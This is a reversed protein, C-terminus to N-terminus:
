DIRTGTEDYVIQFSFSGRDFSEYLRKIGNADFVFRSNLQDGKFGEILRETGNADYFSLFAKWGNRYFSANLRETGNADFVEVFDLVGNNYWYAHVSRTGDAYVFRQHAVVGNNYESSWEVQVSANLANVIRAKEQESLTLDAVHDLFDSRVEDIGLEDEDVQEIASTQTIQMYDDQGGCGITALMALVLAGLLGVAEVKNRMMAGKLWGGITKLVLM